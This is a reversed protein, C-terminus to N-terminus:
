SRSSPRPSCPRRPFYMRAVLEAIYTQGVALGTGLAVRFVDHFSAVLAELPETGVVNVEVENMPDVIGHRNLIRDAGHYAELRLALYPMQSNGFRSRVGDATGVFRM